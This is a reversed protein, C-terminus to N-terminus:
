FSATDIGGRSAHCWSSFFDDVAAQTLFGQPDLTSQSVIPSTIEITFKLQGDPLDNRFWYGDLYGGSDTVFTYRKKHPPPDGDPSGTQDAASAVHIPPQSPREDHDLPSTGGAIIPLFLQIQNDPQTEPIPAQQAPPRQGNQFEYAQVQAACHVLSFLVLAFTRMVRGYNRSLSRITLCFIPQSLM